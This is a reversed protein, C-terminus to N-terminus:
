DEKDLDLEKKMQELLDNVVPNTVGENLTFRTTLQPKSRKWAAFEEPHAEAFAKQDFKEPHSIGTTAIFIEGQRMVGATPFPKEEGDETYYYGEAPDGKVGIRAYYAEKYVGRLKKIQSEMISLKGMEDALMTPTANSLDPAVFKKAM